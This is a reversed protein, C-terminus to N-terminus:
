QPPASGLLRAALGRSKPRQRVKVVKDMPVANGGVLNGEYVQPVWGHHIARSVVSQKLAWNRGFYISSLKYRGFGVFFSGDFWGGSPDGRVGSFLGSLVFGTQHPKLAWWTARTSRRNM